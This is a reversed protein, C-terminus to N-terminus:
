TWTKEHSINSTLRKFHGYFQKEEWKQKRTIKTRNTRMNDTNNRTATILGGGHKEIYDEIRQISTDISDEISAFGRGVNRRSVYLRDVDDRPHLAKHINM